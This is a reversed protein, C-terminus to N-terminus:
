QLVMWHENVNGFFRRKPRVLERKSKEVCNFFFFRNKKILFGFSTKTQFQVVVTFIGAYAWEVMWPGDLPLVLGKVM